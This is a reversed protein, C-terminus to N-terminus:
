VLELRATLTDPAAPRGVHFGQVLDVDLARLPGLIDEDEVGEAVVDMGLSHALETAFRVIQRDPGTALMRATFSRDIKIQHFCVRQLRSLSSDGTGFDDISLRVGQDALAELSPTLVDLDAIRRETVEITLAGTDFGRAALRAVEDPLNADALEGPGVNVALGVRVGLQRWAAWQAVAAGLVFTTIVAGLRGHDARPLFADPALIGLDPHNWRVLAEVAEVRGSALSVLPQYEVFLQDQEVADLLAVASHLSTASLRSM